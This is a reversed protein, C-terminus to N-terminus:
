NSAPGKDRRRNRLWNAVFILAVRLVAGLFGVIFVFLAALRTYEAIRDTRFLSVVLVLGALSIGPVLIEMFTLLYFRRTLKILKESM